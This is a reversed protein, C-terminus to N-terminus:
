IKTLKDLRKELKAVRKELTDSSSLKLPSPVSHRLSKRLRFVVEYDLGWRYGPGAWYDYLWPVGGDRGLEFVGPRGVSDTIQKMAIYLWDYLPQDKYVVRLQPGIEAPCLELGEKEARAYIEDTTPMESFWDSLTVRVLDIKEKKNSYTTKDLLEQAWDSINVGKLNPKKGLTITKWLKYKNKM